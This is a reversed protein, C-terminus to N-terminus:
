GSDRLTLPACGSGRWKCERVQVSGLQARLGAVLDDRIGEATPSLQLGADRILFQAERDKVKWCLLLYREAFCAIWENPESQFPEVPKLGHLRAVREALVFAAVQSTSDAGQKPGPAVHIAAFRYPDCAALTCCCGLLLVTRLMTQQGPGRCRSIFALAGRSYPSSQARPAFGGRRTGFRTM